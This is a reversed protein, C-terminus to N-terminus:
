TPSIAKAKLSKVFGYFKAALKILKVRVRQINTRVLHYYHYYIVSGYPVGQMAKFVKLSKIFTHNESYKQIIKIAEDISEQSTEEKARITNRFVRRIVEERSPKDLTSLFSEFAIQGREELPDKSTALREAALHRGFLSYLTQQEAKVPNGTIDFRSDTVKLYLFPKLKVIAYKELIRLWLDRDQVYRFFARYGGAERYASMRIMAEGHDIINAKIMQSVSHYEIKELRENPEEAPEQPLQPLQAESDLVHHVTCSVVGVDSRSQLYKIQTELREPLSIDGAGQIAVYPTNISNMLSIITKIFGKNEQHIIKLRSDTFEDLIEKTHDPSGDNVVIYEFDQHTQDLISQISARNRDGKNYTATVVTLLKSM